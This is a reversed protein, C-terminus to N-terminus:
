QEELMHLIDGTSTLELQYTRSDLPDYHRDAAEQIGEAVTILGDEDITAIRRLISEGNSKTGAIVKSSIRRGSREFTTLIYEYEMLSARWYVLASFRGETPLKFCAIYETFGDQDQEHDTSLFTAILGLPIPKNEKSFIHHTEVSLTIPLDIKPFFTALASFQQRIKAM